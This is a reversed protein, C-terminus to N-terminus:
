GPRRRSGRLDGVAAAAADLDGPERHPRGLYLRVTEPAAPMAAVGRSACWAGFHRLDSRYARWTNASKSEAEYSRAREELVVLSTEADGVVEVVAAEGTDDWLRLETSGM